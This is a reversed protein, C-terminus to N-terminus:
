REGAGKDGGGDAAAAVRVNGQCQVVLEGSADLAGEAKKGVERRYGFPHLGQSQNM